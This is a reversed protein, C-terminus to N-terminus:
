LSKDADVSTGLDENDAISNIIREMESKSKADRSRNILEEKEAETMKAYGTLAKQNMALSMGFGLPVETFPIGSAGESEMM